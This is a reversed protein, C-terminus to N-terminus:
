APLEFWFTSGLPVSPDVGITGGQAEIALKCFALGVGVSHYTREQRTELTGFKEFIKARAELPVGDGEDHVAVRARGDLSAVSVRLRSGAPTHRIGNTVLNELVRRVLAGDCTVNVPGASEIDIRRDRDLTALAACVDRAIQTLDWAAREVPMRGDELRSVDLLDDTMKRLLDASQVAARLDERHEESLAATLTRLFRLRILLAALPSRMDHVIMHVLDDRLRELTRLRTYSDALAIQARRLAVHTKVRALVEEVQFPKTVYDVGGADFAKIKDATDTLATLFIVPVDRTSEQARLRRCVEYGDMEPMTIDLLILDPPDREVAQLAQAGGTVARVDYGRHDLIDSLLRLNEIMDDVVLVSPMRVPGQDMAVDPPREPNM